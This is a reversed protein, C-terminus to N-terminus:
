DKDTLDTSPDVLFGESLVDRGLLLGRRARGKVLLVDFRLERDGLFGRLSVVPDEGETATLELDEGDPATPRLKDRASAPQRPHNQAAGGSGQVEARSGASYPAILRVM